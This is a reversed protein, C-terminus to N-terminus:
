GQTKKALLEARLERMQAVVDEHPILEGRDASDLGKQVEAVFWADYDVSKRILEAALNEMTTSDRAAMVKLQAEQDDTLEISIHKTM